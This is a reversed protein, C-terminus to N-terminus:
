RIHKGGMLIFKNNNVGVYKFDEKAKLAIALSMVRDDHTNRGQFTLKRTKSVTVVFNALENHLKEDNKQFHIDGNAIKVALESIIEEKSSNTTTWEHLRNKNRTLKRIENFMPAGVGNNELYVAKPSITDILEAIRRYKMDLSGQIEYQVVENQENISTLITADTGNASLDVGVYMSSNQQGETDFCNDYGQFFSIGDDDFVCMYERQFTVPPVSRRIEEIQEQTVFGDDEITKLISAYEPFEDSLGRQYFAYAINNKGLPTTVFVCKKGRAKLTPSLIDNWLMTGDPQEQKHFAVEDCIMHTYTQGRLSSGQEASAFTLVSGFTSEITLDTGNSSKVYEKPMIKVLDRYIKKALVFNRCIYAITNNNGFLWQVCLVQMLVSKGQQRSAIITIYKYKDNVLDYMEQQSQSLKLNFLVEM